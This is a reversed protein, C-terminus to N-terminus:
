QVLGRPRPCGKVRITGGVKLGNPLGKLAPLNELLLDGPVELDDPLRELRPCSHIELNGGLRLARPIKQLQPLDDLVLEHRASLVEPLAELHLCERIVISRAIIPEAQIFTGGCDSIYLMRLPGLSRLSKLSPCQELLIATCEDIGYPGPEAPEELGISQLDPCGVVSLTSVVMRLRLNRVNLNRCIHFQWAPLVLGEPFFRLSPDAEVESHWGSFRQGESILWNRFRGLLLMRQLHDRVLAPEQAFALSAPHIGHAELHWAVNILPLLGDALAFAVELKRRPDTELRLLHDIVLSAGFGLGLLAQAQGRCDVGVLQLAKLHRLIEPHPPTLPIQGRPELVRQM